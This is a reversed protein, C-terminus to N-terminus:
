STMEALSPSAPRLLAMTAEKYPQPWDIRETPVIKMTMGNEVRWYVGPSILDKVKYANDVTIYDGPKVQAAAPTASSAFLGLVILFGVFRSCIMTARDM